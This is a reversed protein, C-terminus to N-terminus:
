PKVIDVPKGTLDYVVRGGRKGEEARIEILVRDNRPMMLKQKSITIRDIKADAMGLRALTDKQLDTWRSTAAGAAALDFYWDAGFTPWDLPPM